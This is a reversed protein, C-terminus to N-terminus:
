RHKCYPAMSSHVDPSRDDIFVLTKQVFVTNGTVTEAGSLIFHILQPRLHFLHPVTVQLLVDVLQLLQPPLQVAGVLVAADQLVAQPLGLLLAQPHRLGTVHVSLQEAAQLLVQLHAASSTTAKTLQLLLTKFCNESILM